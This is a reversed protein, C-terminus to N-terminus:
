STASSGSSAEFAYGVLGIGLLLGGALGLWVGFVLGNAAVVAGAAIVFPWVSLLPFYGLDGAGDAPNADPRDEARLGVRRSQVLLWGAVMFVSLVGLALMTTGADEYSVFWYVTSTAVLFAGAGAFLKWEVRM